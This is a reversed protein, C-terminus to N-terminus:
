SGTTCVSGTRDISRTETSSAAGNTLSQLATVNGNPDFTIKEQGSAGADSCTVTTQATRGRDDYSVSVGCPTPTNNGTEIGSTPRGAADWGNYNLNLTMPNTASSADRSLLRKSADYTLLVTGTGSEGCNSPRQLTEEEKTELVRGVTRAEAVFDAVSAYVYDTTLTGGCGAALTFAGTCSLTSRGQDFVCTSTESPSTFTPYVVQRTFQTVYTRCQSSGSPPPSPANAAGGCAALALCLGTATAHFRFLNKTVDGM